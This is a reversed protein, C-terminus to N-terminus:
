TLIEEYMMIKGGYTTNGMVVIISLPLKSQPPSQGVAFVIDTYQGGYAFRATKTDYADWEDDFDFNIVYDSNDCIYTVNNSKTAIKNKIMINIEPM